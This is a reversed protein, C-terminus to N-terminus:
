LPLLRLRARRTDLTLIAGSQLATENERIARLVTEGILRVSNNMARIQVISPRPKRSSALMHSFDLDETLIVQANQEAWSIIESDPSNPHGVASWHIAEMGQQSLFLAWKPSMNM